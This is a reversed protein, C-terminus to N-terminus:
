VEYYLHFEYPHPRLAMPKVENEMKYSIWTQILDDTFVGGLKLYENDNTLSELSLELNDPAQPINKLEKDSLHYIDMEMPKGPDIKNMIGDIGAMLMAAFAFYPNATGDPCRFEVRKTKPNESYMPIRVAASRNRKSYALNVPAEYGPVLRKYSNTTPNTFALLSPAHKLLGGIYYLATQSLGAYEKGAFLPKSNQWLSQHTHMGSGNDGFIPKPMFTATKGFLRATNKVIYKFMMLNDACQLMPSYKVDIEGQGGTAVEHHQTEVEIGADILHEVMANRVDNTSDAPPVPFYGEKQRIKHGLNAELESGTNWFGERSDIKYWSSYENVNYAVHDLIFFEAEPGFYANDAIKSKKLFEEAKKVVYRPDRSYPAKSIPDIIDCILSLSKTKIFPDVRATSPDPIILMDSENISQWGRISSGDFGIGEGFMKEEFQSVPISFHQWQGPLDTFRFDIMKVDHKKILNFVNKVAQSSSAM